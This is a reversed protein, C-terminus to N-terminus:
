CWGWPEQPRCDAEQSGVGGVLSSAAAGPGGLGHLWDHWSGAGAVLISAAVALAPGPLWSPWPGAGGVLTGM